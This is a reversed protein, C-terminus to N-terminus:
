TNTDLDDYTKVDQCGEWCECKCVRTKLNSLHDIKKYLDLIKVELETVISPLVEKIMENYALTAGVGADCQGRRTQKMNFKALASSM